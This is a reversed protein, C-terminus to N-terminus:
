SLSNGWKLGILDATRRVAGQNEKFVGRAREGMQRGLDPSALLREVARELEQADRVVRMGQKELLLESIAQFNQLHPGSLIPRGFSAPEILNHGGHPVLSGGLFVIESVRYFSALEGVTDLLIVDDRPGSHATAIEGAGRLSSWRSVKLGARKVEQEVEAAREPHRPALLLKLEPFRSRLARHAKLVMQEEGPHTSGAVWLRRGPTLGIRRRLEQADPEQGNTPLVLDWKVNGSIVIRDKSAGLAAFRRADQPSQALFLRVPSLAQAMLPRILLYRRYGRPSIRGNVVVVPVGSRELRDFLVPWLETEFALFLSPRIRRLAREVFPSFDWPLYAVRTRDDAFLKEAVERGTPTVTTVLWRKNPFRRRLEEVLPRAALIEGVSVAQIWIPRDLEPSFGLRERIGPLRRGRLFRAALYVVGFLAFLSQYVSLSISRFVGRSGLRETEQDRLRETQM